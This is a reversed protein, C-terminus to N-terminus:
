ERQVDSEEQRIMVTTPNLHPSTYSAQSLTPAVYISSIKSAGQGARKGWGGFGSKLSLCRAGGPIPVHIWVCGSSRATRPAVGSGLWGSSMQIRFVPGTWGVGWNVWLVRTRDGRPQLQQENNGNGARTGSGKGPGKTERM